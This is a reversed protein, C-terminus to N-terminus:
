KQPQASKIFNNADIKFNVSILLRIQSDRLLGLRVQRIGDYVYQQDNAMSKIPWENLLSSYQGRFSTAQQVTAAVRDGVSKIDELPIRVFM